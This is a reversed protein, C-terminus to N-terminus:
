AAPPLDTDTKKRRRRRVAPLISTVHNKALEGTFIGRLRDGPVRLRRDIARQRAARFYARDRIKGMSLRM